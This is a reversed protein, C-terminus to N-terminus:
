HRLLAIREELREQHQEVRYEVVDSRHRVQGLHGYVRDVLRLGGHGLERAATYPSVPAAGDLTQLRAACYTHRWMRSRVTGRRKPEGKKDKVPEGDAGLVYEWFGARIAVQDLAGDFNTVMTDPGTRGSPFLLRAPPRELDFVYPRLIEELQPWLPVVRASTFTKLRRHSHPRFTVTKRDFSVDGVELGLVEARRGGTLLFTAVLPYLCQLSLDARHLRVTRAAELLLAADPVELWKAERREASPKEILSVVPNFGPQVYDEAAARRYLNSLSNLHHRITGGTLTGRKGQEAQLKTAWRRVDQVSITVLERETGFFETARTLHLEASELWRDTVLGAKAKAILHERAFTHLTARPGAGVITRGRRAAELAEVRRAILVQAVVEDTTAMKEGPAVLPERRGGVSAYDRFDGYARRADGRDRWYLRTRNRSSM